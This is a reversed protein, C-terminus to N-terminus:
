FYFMYYYPVKIFEIRDTAYIHICIDLLVLICRYQVLCGWRLCHPIVEDNSLYFICM